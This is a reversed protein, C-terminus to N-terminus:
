GVAKINLYARYRERLAELNGNIQEGQMADMVIFMGDINILSEEKRLEGNAKMIEIDKIAKNLAKFFRSAKKGMCICIFLILGSAVPIGIALIIQLTTM